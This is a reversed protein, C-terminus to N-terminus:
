NRPALYTVGLPPAAMGYLNYLQLVLKYLSQQVRLTSMPPPAPAAQAFEYLGCAQAYLQEVMGSFDEGLGFRGANQIVDQAEAGVYDQIWQLLDSLYIPPLQLGALPAGLVAPLPNPVVQLTDRQAPGIFVSDLVFRVEDVVESIVGLQRSIFVLQTGLFQSQLGAFYQISNEWANFVSNAYDVLIRFNTANQEDAISNIYCPVSLTPAYVAPPFSITEQSFLGLLDRLDGLSGLVTDADTWYDPPAAGANATWNPLALNSGTAIWWATAALGLPSTPEPTQLTPNGVTPSSLGLAYSVQPAVGLLLSLYQQVRLVRPGGLYGIESCLNTLQSTVVDKVAAVDELNAAPDLPYLGDILPLMQDVVTKAMTYISAQAGTIGGSLDSQVVYSRPTWTSVVAGEVTKLQFSQNLAGVFGTADGPKVKWGLADQIAKNVIPGLGGNKGGGGRTTAGGGAAPSPPYGLEETLIPFAPTPGGGGGFVPAAPLNGLGNAM